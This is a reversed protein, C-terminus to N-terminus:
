SGSHDDQVLDHNNISLCKIQDLTMFPEPTNGADLWEQYEEWLKHGKPITTNTEKNFIVEPNGSLKYM